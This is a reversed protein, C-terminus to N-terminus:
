QVRAEQATPSAESSKPPCFSRFAIDTTAQILVQYLSLRVREFLTKSSESGSRSYAPPSSTEEPPSSEASVFDMVQSSPSERGEETPPPKTDPVSTPPYESTLDILPKDEVAPISTESDNAIDQSPTPIKENTTSRAMELGRKIAALEAPSYPSGDSIPLTAQQLHNRSSRAPMLSEKPAKATAPSAQQNSVDKLPSFTDARDHLWKGQTDPTTPTDLWSAPKAPSFRNASYSTSRQAKALPTKSSKIRSVYTAAESSSIISFILPLVSPTSPNSGVNVTSAAGPKVAKLEEASYRIRHSPTPSEPQNDCSEESSSYDVVSSRLSRHSTMKDSNTRPFHLDESTIYSLSDTIPM